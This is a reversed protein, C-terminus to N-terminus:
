IGNEELTVSLTDNYNEWLNRYKDDTTGRTNGRSFFKVAGNGDKKRISNVKITSRQQHPARTRNKIRGVNNRRLEQKEPRSNHKDTGEENIRANHPAAGTGENFVVNM